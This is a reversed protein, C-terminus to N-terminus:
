DYHFEYMLLKSLDVICIKVYTPKRLTLPVKNKCIAVLNNDFIKQSMYRPKSTWKLYDKENSLLRRDIKNELNEMAKSYINNDM